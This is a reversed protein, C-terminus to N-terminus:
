DRDVPKEGLREYDAEITPGSGPHPRPPRGSQGAPQRRPRLQEILHHGLITRAALRRLPPVLLAAGIADTILGPAILCAGGFMLLMGELVPEVPPTGSALADVMRGAVGLGQRQSVTLGLVATGVIIAFTLWIGILSAVKILLALELLPFAVIMLLFVISTPAM